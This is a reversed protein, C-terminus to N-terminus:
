QGPPRPVGPQDDEARGMVPLQLSPAPIATTQGGGIRATAADASRLASMLRDNNAIMKIGRNLVAPDSSTLLEAVKNAVKIDVGRKGAAFLAAAVGSTSPDFGLYGGGAAGAAGGALGHTILQQATTSNGQVARLGQQMIGEVRLMAELEKARQPGLVLQIKQRNAENAYIKKVVDARDPVKELMEVLRSVFGDQFLQRETQSMKALAARTQPVAFNTTVFKQGAELANESGFFAAAGARAQQYSPVLNDLEANMAKALQGLYGAKDSEGARAAKKAADSIERRTYDWFQMTPYSPVGNAGKQFKLIGNEFTVGANFGGMGDVIARSKGSSAADSMARVVDPSGTLRELEPSWVGRDGDRYARGYAARNVTKELTDIAGQQAHADPYHFTRRFWDTLRNGQGEFRDDLTQNLKDRAGGSLNAASRALDRGPAGLTDMVTEPGRPRLENQALRNVANPDADSAEKFARGVAREAAATPNIASSFMSVPRSVAAGVGKVVGEVVPVGVAGLATGAGLGVVGKTAREEATTGEGIGAAAGTAGGMAAGRGMRAAITPAGLMGGVPLAVAGGIQGTLYTGPYQEEAAKQDARVEDRRSAYKKAAEDGGTLYEYGLRALGRVFDSPGSFPSDLEKPTGAAAAVGAMEDGFNFTVGSRLGEAFAGGRSIERQPRVTIRTPADTVPASPSESEPAGQFASWPGPQPARPQASAKNFKEAYASVTTGLIDKANPNNMGGEGAFWARAAGEPGHKKVYGGFIHEFVKDQAEPSALFQMPTMRQGLAQETWPGVNFDMVQYKGLARGKGTQPGVARYNGGSEIGSIADAYQPQSPAPGFAEWPGAM